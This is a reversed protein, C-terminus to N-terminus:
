PRGGYPTALRDDNYAAIQDIMQQNRVQSQILRQRGAADAFGGPDPRIASTLSVALAPPGRPGASVLFIRM